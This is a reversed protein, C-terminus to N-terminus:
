SVNESLQEGRRGYPPAVFLIRYPWAECLRLFMEGFPGTGADIHTLLLEELASQSAPDPFVTFRFPSAQAPVLVQLPALLAEVQRRQALEVAPQLAPVLGWVDEPDAQALLEGLAVLDREVDDGHPDILQVRHQLLAPRDQHRRAHEGLWALSDAQDARSRSRFLWAREQLLGLTQVAAGERVTGELGREILDLAQQEDGRQAAIRAGARFLPSGRRLDAQASAFIAQAQGESSPGYPLLEEIQSALSADRQERTAHERVEPPVEFGLTALRLQVQLPFEEIAAQISSRVERDGLKKDDVWEGLHLRHYLEEARGRRDPQRSYWAVARRRIEEVQAPASAILLKLMVRRLDGRHVLDGDSSDVSVLSTERQLQEFLGEAQKITRIGLGCPENLVELIVSPNIRRLVLGPHALRRVQENAIHDLIREYLQGQILEDSAAVLSGGTAAPDLLAAAGGPTRDALSAVLKLSLPVRGFTLVLKVQLKRDLIGQTKLFAMASEDDLEGLVIQRPPKGALRLSEVPARGAVVVRLFPARGQVKALMDWLPFARAEGRYQIEEFTDLVVVYPRPGLVSRMRELVDGLVDRAAALRSEPPVKTGDGWQEIARDRIDAFRGDGPFQIDLQHLLEICLALPDGVDLSARNFDLYGFPVRADERLRTHELMFRAVLASKGVGGPGSISVAPQREPEAWRFLGRLRKMVSEPSVVGIYSRLEDLERKRGRFVNDGAIVEFPELLKLYAARANVEDETPVGKVVGGLWVAVQRTADLEELSQRELPPAEQRLYRELHAQLPSDREDPNAALAAEVRGTSVLERITEIRVDPALMVKGNFKRGTAPVLDTGLVATVAGAAPEGGLPRLTEPNEVAVLVAAAERYAQVQEPPREIAGEAASGSVDALYALVDDASLGSSRSM